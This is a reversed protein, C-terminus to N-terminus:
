TYVRGAIVAYEVAVRSAAFRDFPHRRVATQVPSTCILAALRADYCLNSCKVPSVCALLIRVETAHSRGVLSSDINFAQIGVSAPVTQLNARAAAKMANAAAGGATAPPNSQSGSWHPEQWFPSTQSGPVNDHTNQVSLESHSGHGFVMHESNPHTGTLQIVAAPPRLRAM